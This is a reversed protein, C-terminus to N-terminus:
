GRAEYAGQKETPTMAVITRRFGLARSDCGDWDM